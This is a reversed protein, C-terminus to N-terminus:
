AASALHDLAEEYRSSISKSRSSSAEMAEPPRPLQCVSAAPRETYTLLSSQMPACPPPRNVCRGLLLWRCGQRRGQQRGGEQGAQALRPARGEVDGQPAHHRRRQLSGARGAASRGFRRGRPGGRRKRRRLTCSQVSRGRGGSQSRGLRSHHRRCHVHTGGGGGGRGVARGSAGSAACNQPELWPPANRHASPQAPSSCGQRSQGLAQQKWCVLGQRGGERGGRCDLHGREEGHGAAVRQDGGVPRQLLLVHLCARNLDAAAGCVSGDVSTPLRGSGAQWPSRM